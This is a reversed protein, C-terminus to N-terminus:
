PFIQAPPLRAAALQAIDILQPTNAPRVAPLADRLM